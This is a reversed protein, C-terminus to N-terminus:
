VMSAAAQESKAQFAHANIPVEPKQGAAAPPGAAPAKQCCTTTLACGAATPTATAAHPGLPFSNSPVCLTRNHIHLPAWAACSVRAATWVWSSPWCSTPSAPSSPAQLTTISPSHSNLTHPPHANLPSEPMCRLEARPVWHASAAGLVRCWGGWRRLRDTRRPGHHPVPRQRHQLEHAALHAGSAGALLCGDGAAGPRGAPRRWAQGLVPRVFRHGGLGLEHLGRVLGLGAPPPPPSRKPPWDRLRSRHTCRPQLGELCPGAPAPM